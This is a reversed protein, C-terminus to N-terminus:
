RVRRAVGRDRVTNAPDKGRGTPVRRPNAWPRVDQGGRGGPLRAARRQVDDEGFRKLRWSKAEYLGREIDRSDMDGIDKVDIKGYEFYRANLFREMWRGRIQVGREVEGDRLLQSYKKGDKDNDLAVILEDTVELILRMQPDSVAAGYAALGGEWGLTHLRVVDLPSECLIAPEGLPFQQFGFLTLSKKVDEPFNRFFRGGEEKKQWGVLEGSPKRIPIIWHSKKADWLVGYHRCAAASIDRAELAWTPPEDFLALRTEDMPKIQRTPEETREEWDPLNRAKELNIGYQRMWRAAAFVDRGKFLVDAVLSVFTGKYGCSFCNHVGTVRNVSWHANRQEEGTRKFHQPCIGHVEDDDSRRIEIGMDYLASEIDAPAHGRGSRSRASKM